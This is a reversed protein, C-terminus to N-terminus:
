SVKTITFAGVSPNPPGPDTMTFIVSAAAATIVVWTGNYAAPTAGTITFTNGLALYGDSNDFVAVGSTSWLLQTGTRGSPAPPEVSGSSASYFGGTPESVAFKRGNSMEYAVDKKLWDDGWAKRCLAGYNVTRTFPPQLPVGSRAM